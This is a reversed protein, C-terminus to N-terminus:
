ATEPAPETANETAAARHELVLGEFRAAIRPWALREEALARARAGWRKRAEPSVAARRLAETWAAVDGAPVVLGCGEPEVLAALRPRDSTLVPRGCALAQALRVGRTRDDLAPVAFLTSHGLLGPLEEERPEPLFYARSAVGLRDVMARLESAERGEGALVLSWDGRQGVTRAFAEVLVRVGREPELPGAYLLIRGPIRHRSVIASSLGPRFLGLDFGRPVVHVRQAPFGESVLEDRVVPDVAVAATTARKVTRGWLREGVWLLVRDLPGFRAGMGTEVPLFPVGLRRALRAGRWAAPSLAAYALVADPQFRVPSEDGAEDDGSRPVAGPAAGWARVTHGRALLERALASAHAGDRGHSRTPDLLLAFRLSVTMPTPRAPGRPSGSSTEPARPDM